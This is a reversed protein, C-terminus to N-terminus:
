CQLLKNGSIEYVNKEMKLVCPIESKVFHLKIPKLSAKM